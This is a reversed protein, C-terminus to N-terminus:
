KTESKGWENSLTETAKKWQEQAHDYAIKAEDSKRRAGVAERETATFKDKAAALKNEASIADQTLNEANRKAQMMAEYAVSANKQLLEINQATVTLPCAFIAVSLLLTRGLLGLHESRLCNKCHFHKNHSM